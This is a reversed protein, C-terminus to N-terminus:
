SQEGEKDSEEFEKVTNVPHDSPLDPDNREEPPLWKRGGELREQTDAPGHIGFPLSEVDDLDPAGEGALGKRYAARTLAHGAILSTVLLFVGISM